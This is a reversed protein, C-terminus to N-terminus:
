RVPGAASAAPWTRALVPVRSPTLESAPSTRPASPRSSTKATTASRTGAPPVSGASAASSSTAAARAAQPQRKEPIATNAPPAAGDGPGTRVDRAAARGAGRRDARRVPPPAPRPLPGRDARGRGRRGPHAGAPLLAPQGPGPGAGALGAAGARRGASQDDIKELGLREGLQQQSLPGAETLEALAFVESASARVGDHDHPELLGGVRVLWRLLRRLEDDPFPQAM